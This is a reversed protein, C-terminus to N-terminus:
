RLCKSVYRIRGKSRHQVRRWQKGSILPEQGLLMSLIAFTVCVPQDIWIYDAVKNWSQNNPHLSYDGAIHLPGNQVIILVLM